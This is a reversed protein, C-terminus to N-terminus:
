AFRVWNAGAGIQVRGRATTSGDPNMEFLAAHTSKEGVAVMFRGDDSVNFGRPRSEVPTFAVVDGFAGQEDLELSAIKSSTRESTLLHTTAIHIDAGWILHEAMPDGGLYSHELGDAPDVVFKREVETLAGDTGIEYRIAEGSFETVLYANNGHAVIHRPGSGEPASVTAPDLAELRNDDTLRFQAVLDDGLSPAYVYQGHQIIGHLNRHRFHSHPEGLEHGDLPFVMGVGGSYSIGLLAGRDATLSLYNMGAEVDRRALERLEGTQRDLELTAIGPSDAGKFAAFVLNRDADIAFNSCGPVDASTALLRLTPEPARVLELVSITGDAANATLILEAM